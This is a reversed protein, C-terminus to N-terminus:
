RGDGRRRTGGRRCREGMWGHRGAALTDASEPRARATRTGAARPGAHAHVRHRADRPERHPWTGPTSAQARAGARAAPTVDRPIAAVAPPSLIPPSPTRERAAPVQAPARQEARYAVTGDRGPGPFIESIVCEHAIREGVRANVVGSREVDTVVDVLAEVGAVSVWGDTVAPPSLTPPSRDRVRPAPAPLERVPTRTYAIDHMALNEIRGRGRRRRKRAPEPAHPPTVDRPIAAVAPPSLIPPSPTRERAAPVQAPARQEARYAVTGDRGPGPFIESIVCEHAIREGVRANVVGSREVDTVVDVLAEVGAVSVWGDTVAPPSLTPPSRDRVRPAPAPLERGPTRVYASDHM